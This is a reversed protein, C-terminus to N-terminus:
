DRSLQAATSDATGGLHKSGSAANQVASLAANLLKGDLSVGGGGRSCAGGPRV